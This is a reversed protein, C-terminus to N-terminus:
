DSEKREDNMVYAQVYMDGIQVTKRKYMNTVFADSAKLQDNNLEYLKGAVREGVSREIHFINTGPFLGLKYNTLIAPKGQRAEGWVSRQVDTVNLADYVFLKNVTTPAVTTAPVSTRRSKRKGM